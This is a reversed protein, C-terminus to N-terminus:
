IPSSDRLSCYLDSLIDSSSILIMLIAFYAKFCWGKRHHKKQMQLFLYGDATCIRADLLIEKSESFIQLFM